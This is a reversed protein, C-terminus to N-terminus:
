LRDRRGSFWRQGGHGGGFDGAGEGGAEFADAEEEAVDVADEGVAGDEHAAFAFELAEVDAVAEADDPGAAGAELDAPDGGAGGEGGLDAGVFEFDIEEDLLAVVAAFGGGDFFEQGPFFQVPVVGAKDSIIDDVETREGAGVEGHGDAVAHGFGFGGGM